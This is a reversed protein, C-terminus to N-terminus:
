TSVLRSMDSERVRQYTESEKMSIIGIYQVQESICNGEIRYERQDLLCTCMGGPTQWSSLFYANGAGRVTICLRFLPRKFSLTSMRAKPPAAQATRFSVFALARRGNRPSTSNRSARPRQQMSFWYTNNNTNNNHENQLTSISPLFSYVISTISM